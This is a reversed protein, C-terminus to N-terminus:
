EVGKKFHGKTFDFTIDSSSFERRICTEYMDLVKRTEDDSEVTFDLRFALPNTARISSIENFLVTPVPNYIINYCYKCNNIVRLRKNYRDTLSINEQKNNCGYNNGNICQATIMFPAHGYLSILSNANNRTKMDHLSLELPMSCVSAYESLTNVAYNNYTYISYDAIIRNTPISNAMLLGLGDYTYTIFGDALDSLSKIKDSLYDISVKYERIIKPLSVIIKKGCAKVDSILNDDSLELPVMVANVYSYRLTTKLQSINSISIVTDGKNILYDKNNPFSPLKVEKAINRRYKSVILSELQELGERRLKKLISKPVFINDSANVSINRVCFMTDGTQMLVAEIDSIDSPSKMAKDIPAEGSLSVAYDEYTYTVQPIEGELFSAECSINIKNRYVPLVDEKSSTHAPSALSVMDGGNHKILYGDTFGARNGLELLKSFSKSDVQQENYLMDLALRYIYTVGAAYRASKMRGEIKLSSVGADSLEKLHDIACFDKLSLPYKNKFLSKEDKYVSYPLRCPGACRGRNGSRGGLYGSFLCQGSYSFCLAGHVFTEIEIDPNSAKIRKIEPIMLERALVVRNAGLEKMFSVGMESCLTTQTSAHIELGPFSDKLLKFVGMDQVIVADLGAEYFPAVYFFLCDIEKDKLCTNITLHLKVGYMHCYDIAAIIEEPTFNTAYARASFMNGGIYVADAGAAVVAKLVEFSGAPALLEMKKM